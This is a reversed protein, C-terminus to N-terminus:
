RPAKGYKEGLVTLALVAGCVVIAVTSLFYYRTLDDKAEEIVFPNIMGALLLVLFVGLLVKFVLIAIKRKFVVGVGVLLLFVSFTLGGVSHLYNTYCLLLVAYAILLIASILNWRALLSLRFGKDSSM